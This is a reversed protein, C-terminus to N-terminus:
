IAGFISMKEIKNTFEWVKYALEQIRWDEQIHWFTMLVWYSSRVLLCALQVLVKLWQVILSVHFIEQFFSSNKM